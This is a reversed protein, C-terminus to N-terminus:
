RSLPTGLTARSWMPLFTTVMAPYTGPSILSLPNAGGGLVTLRAKSPGARVHLLVQVQNLVVSGAADRVYVDHNVGVLRSLPTADLVEWSYHLDKSLSVRGERQQGPADLFVGEIQAQATGSATKATRVRTNNSGSFLSFWTRTPLTQEAGVVPRVDEIGRISVWVQVEQTPGVDEGDMWYQACDHGVILVRAKGDELKLLFASGVFDQFPRPDLLVQVADENCQKSLFHLPRQDQAGAQTTLLATAVLAGVLSRFAAM